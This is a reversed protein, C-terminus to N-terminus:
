LTRSGPFPKLLLSGLCSAPASGAALPVRGGGEVRSPVTEGFGAMLRCVLGKWDERDPGELSPRGWPRQSPGCGPELCCMLFGGFIILIQIESANRGM